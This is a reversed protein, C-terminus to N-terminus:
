ILMVPTQSCCLGAFGTSSGEFGGMVDMFLCVLGEVQTHRPM